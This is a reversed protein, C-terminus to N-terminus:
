IPNSIVTKGGVARNGVFICWRILDFCSSIAENERVYEHAEVQQSILSNGHEIIM